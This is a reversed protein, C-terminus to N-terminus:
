SPGVIYCSCCASEAPTHPLEFRAAACGVGYAANVERCCTSCFPELYLLIVAAVFVLMAVLFSDGFYM